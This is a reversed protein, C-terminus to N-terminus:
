PARRAEALVAEARAVLRDDESAKALSLARLADEQAKEADGADLYARAVHCLVRAEGRRDGQARVLELAEEFCVAASRADFLAAHTRGLHLVSRAEM